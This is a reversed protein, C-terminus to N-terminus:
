KEEKFPRLLHQNANFRAIYDREGLEEYLAMVKDYNEWAYQRFWGSTISTCVKMLATEFSKRPDPKFEYPIQSRELALVCSEEYVGFLRIDEVVAFFKEKSTMVEAGDRIYFKYAPSRVSYSESGDILCVTEHISDHDYVYNVGDGSFFGQKDQDLKPHAYNYSEKQRLEYFAQLDETIECGQERMFQIDRMTKLFHVSNKKYRHSMKITYLENASPWVPVTWGELIESGPWRAMLMEASTGPWAIEVEDIKGDKYKLVFHSDDMPYCAKLDSKAAKLYLQFQDYTMIMDLDKGVERNLVGVVRAAVSGIVIM